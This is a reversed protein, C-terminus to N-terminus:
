PNRKLSGVLRKARNPDIKTLYQLNHDYRVKDKASFACLAFNEYTDAHNYYHVTKLARDFQHYAQEFLGQQCLFAGYNNLVDGQEDDLKIATLYAQEALQLDGQAQYFYALASHVLYYEPAYSFAKDFNLKAQAFNRQALYGLGLEIRAKAAQLPNFVATNPQSVCGSFFLSFMIALWLKVTRNM